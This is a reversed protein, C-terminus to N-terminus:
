LGLPVKCWLQCLQGRKKERKKKKGHSEAPVPNLILGAFSRCMQTPAWIFPLLHALSSSSRLLTFILLSSLTSSFCSCFSLCKPSSPHPPFGPPWLPWLPSESASSNHLLNSPDKIQSAARVDVPTSSSYASTLRDGSTGAAARKKKKIELQHLLNM